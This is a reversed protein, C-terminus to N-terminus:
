RSKLDAEPFGIVGFLGAIGHGISHQIDFVSAMAEGVGAIILFGLGVKGANTHVQSWIAVM